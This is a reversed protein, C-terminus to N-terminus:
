FKILGKKRVFFLLGSLGSGFLMLTSAEPVSGDSTFWGSNEQDPGLARIRAAHPLGEPSNGGGASLFEVDHVDLGTGTMTISVVSNPPLYTYTAGGGDSPGWQFWIDFSGDGDAQKSDQLYGYDVLAPSVSEIGPFSIGGVFEPDLNLYLGIFKSLDPIEYPDLTLTVKDTATDDLKVYVYGGELTAGSGSFEYDLKWEVVDAQAPTSAFALVGLALLALYKRM